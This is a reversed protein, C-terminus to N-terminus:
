QLVFLDNSHISTKLNSDVVSIHKAAVSGSILIKETNWLRVDLNTSKLRQINQM